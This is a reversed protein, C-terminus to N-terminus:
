PVGRGFGPAHTRAVLNKSVKEVWCRIVSVRAGSAQGACGRTGTHCRCTSGPDGGLPFESVVVSLPRAM